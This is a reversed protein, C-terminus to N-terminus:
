CHIETFPLRRRGPDSQFHKIDADQRKLINTTESNQLNDKESAM